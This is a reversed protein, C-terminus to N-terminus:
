SRLSVLMRLRVWGFEVVVMDCSALLRVRYM